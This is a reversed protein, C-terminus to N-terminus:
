FYSEGLGAGFFYSIQMEMTTTSPTSVPLFQVAERFPLGWEPRHQDYGLLILM